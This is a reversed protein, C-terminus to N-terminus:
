DVEYGYRRAMDAIQQKEPVDPLDDWSLGAGGHANFNSPVAALAAAAQERSVDVGAQEGIWCILDVDVDEVKWRRSAHKEAIENFTLYCRMADVLNDGSIDFMRARLEYYPGTRFEFLQGNALSNIVQMPDRTQHWVLGPYDDIWVAGCWSSEGVLGPARSGHPNFWEEHGTRIGAASLVAAIYGSGSRGTQAILFKPETVRYPAWKADHRAKDAAIEDKLSEWDGTAAGEHTCSTDLVIGAKSGALTVSAVMDSDGYWWKLDEPFRYGSEGKIMFAFGAFGGTGDYRGACIDQTYVVGTGDRGDYNPCVAGLLPDHRLARALGALFGSGIEIDNNLIAVNCPWDRAAAEDLGANWMQHINAGDADFVEVDPMDLTELANKTSRNSGNDFLFIREYGGQSRLQRLLNRTLDMRNRMPVVVYTPLRDPRQYTNEDLFTHKYHSTKVGTHVHLPFGAETVRKSFTLDEGFVDGKYVTEDFWERPHHNAFTRGLHELVGRHIVMFAAGTGDCRVLTDTPYDLMPAFGATAPTDAWRYITPVMQFRRAGAQTDPGKRQAFALGGVVPREQPHAVDLLRHVADPEFGMDADVFVLWEADSRLFKRVLTNRGDTIRGSGCEEYLLGTLKQGHGLDHMIMALLSQHFSHAVEGPHLYALVFSM